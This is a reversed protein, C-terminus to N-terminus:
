QFKVFFADTPTAGYLSDQRWLDYLLGDISGKIASALRGKGDIVQFVYPKLGIEISEAIVNLLVRVHLFQFLVEPSITRAAAVM